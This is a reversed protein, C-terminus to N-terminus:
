RPAAALALKIADLSISDQKAALRVVVEALLLFDADTIIGVLKGADDVVPLCGYKHTRLTTAADILDTDPTVTDVDTHMYDRVKTRSAYIAREVVTSTPLYARLLDRHTILGVFRGEEVCPLHRVRGMSMLEEASVLPSAANLTIVEETMLDRVKM